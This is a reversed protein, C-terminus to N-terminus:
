NNCGAAKKEIIFKKLVGEQKEPEVGGGKDPGCHGQEILLLQYSVMKM